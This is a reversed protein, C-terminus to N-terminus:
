APVANATEPTSQPRVVAYPALVVAIEASPVQSSPQHLWRQVLRLAEGTKDDRAIADLAESMPAEKEVALEQRWRRLLLMELSAKAEADLTGAELQLLLSQLMEALTPEPPAPAAAEPAKARGYLILLLLWIVWFVALGILTATYHGGVEVHVEETEQIRADLEKSLKPDGHFKFSPLGALPRGDEGVLYDKLDYTGARNALYRVDYVRSGPQETVRAVRVNVAVGWKYPAVAILPGSYTVIAAQEVGLPVNLSDVPKDPWVLIAIVMGLVSLAAIVWWLKTWLRSSSHEM